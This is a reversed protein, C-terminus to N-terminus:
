REGGNKDGDTAVRSSWKRLLSSFTPAMNEGGAETIQDIIRQDEIKTLLRVNDGTVGLVLIAGPIEVLAISKKVGIYSNAVVRILKGGSPRFGDKRLLRKLFFGCAGIGGMVIVLAILMRLATSLMDPSHSM